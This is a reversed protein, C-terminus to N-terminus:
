AFTDQNIIKNHSHIFGTSLACEIIEGVDPYRKKDVKATSPFYNTYFRGEIQAHSQTVICLYAKSKLVRALQIFMVAIDPIHHIVDTMYAFDFYDCEFPINNHDGNAVIVNPNKAAAKERM